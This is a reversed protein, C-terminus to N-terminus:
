KDSTVTQNPWNDWWGLVKHLLPVSTDILVLARVSRRVGSDPLFGTATLTYVPGQTLTLSALSAAVSMEPVAAQLEQPLRFPALARAAIVSAAISDSWGPLTRLVEFPAYNPNVAAGADQTTFIDALPPWKQWRGEPTRQMSGFFLSRTMGRVPLLEDLQELQAHRAPYPQPMAAYFLDLPSGVESTRPSRWEVIAAALSISDAPPLGLGAFLSALQEPPATNINLKANEPVIEVTCAGTPFQFQLWRKGPVFQSSQSFEEPAPQTPNYSTISYVASEIGGRALYYGRQWDIRNGVAEIETRVLHATAMAMFSLAVALWLVALLAVGKQHAPQQVVIEHSRTIQALFKDPGLPFASGESREPHCGGDMSTTMRDVLSLLLSGQSQRLSRSNM